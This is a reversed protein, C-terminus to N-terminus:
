YFEVIDLLNLLFSSINDYYTLNQHFITQYVCLFPAKVVRLQLLWLRLAFLLQNKPFPFLRALLSNCQAIPMTKQHKQRNNTLAQFTILNFGQSITKESIQGFTTKVGNYGTPVITFSLSFVVLLAGVISCVAVGKHKKVAFFVALALFIAGLAFIVINLM